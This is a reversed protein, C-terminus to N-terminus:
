WTIVWYTIVLNKDYFAVGSFFNNPLTGDNTKLKMYNTKSPLSVFKSKIIIIDFKNDILKPSNNSQTFDEYLEKPVIKYDFIKDGM